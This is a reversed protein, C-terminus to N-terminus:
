RHSGKLWRLLTSRGDGRPNWAGYYTQARTNKRIADDFVKRNYPRIQDVLRNLEPPSAGDKFAVDFEVYAFFRPLEEKLFNVAATQLAEVERESKLEKGAKEKLYKLLRDIKAVSIHQSLTGLPVFALMREIEENDGVTRMRQTVIFVSYAVDLLCHLTSATSNNVVPPACTAYAPFWPNQFM